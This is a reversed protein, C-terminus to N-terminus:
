FRGMGRQGLMIPRESEVFDALCEITDEDALVPEILDSLREAAEGIARWDSDSPDNDGSAMQELLKDIHHRAAHLASEPDSTKM